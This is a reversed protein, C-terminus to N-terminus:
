PDFDARIEAKKLIIEEPLYGVLAKEVLRTLTTEEVVAQARAQKLISPHVFLTIRQKTNTKAPALSNKFSTM